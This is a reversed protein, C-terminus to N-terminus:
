KCTLKPSWYRRGSVFCMWEHDHWYGALLLVWMERCCFVLLGRITTRGIKLLKQLCITRHESAREHLNSLVSVAIFCYV